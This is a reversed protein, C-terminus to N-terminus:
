KEEAETANLEMSDEDMLVTQIFQAQTMTVDSQADFIIAYYDMVFLPGWAPNQGHSINVTATDTRPFSAKITFPKGSSGPPINVENAGFVQVGNVEIIMWRGSPRDSSSLAGEFTVMEWGEGTPDQFTRWTSAVAAGKVLNTQIGHQGHDEVILPGYESNPGAESGSWSATHQWDGWGDRAWIWDSSATSESTFKVDITQEGTGKDISDMNFLFRSVPGMSKGNVTVDRIIFGQDPTITFLEAQGYSITVPSSPSISGGPAASPIITYTIPRGDTVYRVLGRNLKATETIRNKTIEIIGPSSTFDLNRYIVYHWYCQYMLPYSFAWSAVGHAKASYTPDTIAASEDVSGFEALHDNAYAEYEDHLLKYNCVIQANPFVILTFPIDVFQLPIIQAMPTHYPNGLDSIFHSAYGMNEFADDYDRSAYAIRALEALQGFNDPATGLGFIQKPPSLWPLNDFFVGTPVFGHEYQHEFPYGGDIYWNDPAQSSDEAVKQYYSDKINEKTLANIMLESHAKGAWQVIIQNNHMMEMEEAIYTEIERFTENERRTLSYKQHSNGPVLRPTSGTKEYAVPYKEWTRQMFRKWESRKEQSVSAQDIYDLLAKKEKEGAALFIWHPTSEILSHDLALSPIETFSDPTRPQCREKTNHEEHRRASEGQNGDNRDDRKEEGKLPTNQEHAIAPSILQIMMFVVLVLGAIRFVMANKM